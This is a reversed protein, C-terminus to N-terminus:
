NFLDTTNIFRMGELAGVALTEVHKGNEDELVFAPVSTVNHEAAREPQETADVIEIPLGKSELVTYFMRCSGCDPTSIMLVKNNTKNSM